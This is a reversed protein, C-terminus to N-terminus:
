SSSRTLRSFFEGRRIELNIHNVAKVRAL